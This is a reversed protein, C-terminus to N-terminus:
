LISASDYYHYPLSQRCTDCSLERYFNLCCNLTVHLESFFVNTRHYIVESKTNQGPGSSLSYYFFNHAIWNNKKIPSPSANPSACTTLNEFTYSCVLNVKKADVLKNCAECRYQNNGSLSEMEVYNTNLM